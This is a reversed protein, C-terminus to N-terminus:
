RRSLSTTGTKQAIKLMEEFALRGAKKADYDNAITANMTFDVTGINIGGSADDRVVKNGTVMNQVLENLDLLSSTLSGSQAGLIDHKWMQTDAASLFAEPKTPTGHVQAIGTYDVLGGERFGTGNKIRKIIPKLYDKVANVAANTKEKVSGSAAKYAKKFVERAKPGEETAIPNSSNFFKKYDGSVNKKWNKWADQAAAEKKAETYVKKAAKQAEADSGTEIYAKKYAEKIAAKNDKWLQSDINKISAKVLELRTKGKSIKETWFKDSETKTENFGKKYAEEAAQRAAAEAEEATKGSDLLEQYKSQYAESAQSKYRAIVTNGYADTLKKQAEKDENYKTWAEQAAKGNDTNKGKLIKEVEELAETSTKGANIQEEYKKRAEEWTEESVNTYGKQEFGKRIEEWSKEPQQEVPDGKKDDRRAIWQGIVEELSKLEAELQTQSLGKYDNNYATIFQEIQDKPLKMIDYVDAWLLGNTKEYELQQTMLDIQENMKELQADSAEQIADIQQQQKDFYMQQAQDDITNQLSAIESASAGSRQMIALRRRNKDIDEQAKNNQYMQQERQLQKNLGDIYKDSAEQFADVVDQLEDIEAQRRDEIAKLVKGELTIQNNRMEQLIQNAKEQAELVAKEAERYSDYYGDLEDKWGDAKDWFAQVAKTYYDDANKSDKDYVIEKGSSDYKMENAFGWKKLMEYQQKATYYSSGNANRRNLESLAFLGGRQGGPLTVNDNYQIQGNSDYTFINAFPSDKLDEARREYYSKQLAALQAQKAATQNLADLSRKQSAYYAEGNAVLDSSLKKRLTEEYNIDKELGAIQRLLNYWRELDAIFGANSKPDKGGGGGGGGGGGSGGLAGLDSLSAGLLAQWMARLQKLSALAASASAMAPGVNGTAMSVAVHENTVAKGRGAKGNTLLKKTQLHNFVVADPDLDVMEAGNQGVVFYRGKSVVLEPGLEGMLTRKRGSKLAVNGSKFIRLQELSGQVQAGNAEVRFRLIAEITRRDPIRNIAATLASVREAIGSPINSMATALNSVYIANDPISSIASTLETAATKLVQLAAAAATFESGSEQAGSDSSTTPVKNKWKRYTKGDDTIAEPNKGGTPTPLEPTPTPNEGKGGGIGLWDLIAQLKPSIVADLNVTVDTEGALLIQAFPDETEAIEPTVELLQAQGKKEFWTQKDDSTRGAASEQEYWYELAEKLTDFTKSGQPLKYKTGGEGVTIVVSTDDELTFKGSTSGIKEDFTIEGTEPDIGADLLAQHQLAEKINTSKFGDSAEYEGNENPELTVGYGIAFKKDGVQITDVDGFEKSFIDLISKQLNDLDYDGNLYANYFAQLIKQYQNAEDFTFTANPDSLKQLISILSQDGIYLTKLANALDENEEAQKIINAAWEQTDQKAFLLGGETDFLEDLDLQNDKDGQIDIERLDEMAVVVELLQIMADLMKINANAVAEIGADVGSVMDEAGTVTLGFQSLDIQAGKGEVVEIASFGKEILKAADEMSGSLHYGMFDIGTETMAAINNMENVMNYFDQISMYGDKAAQNMSKFAEDWANWYNEPGQYMDPLKNDMFSYQSPDNMQVSAIERYLNLRERVENNEPGNSLQKELKAIEAM